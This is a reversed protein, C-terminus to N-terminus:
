AGPYGMLFVGRGMEVWGSSWRGSGLAVVVLWSGRRLGLALPGVYVLRPLLGLDVRWQASDPGFARCISEPPM